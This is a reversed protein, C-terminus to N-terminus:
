ATELVEETPEGAFRLQPRPVRLDRRIKWLAWDRFLRARGVRQSPLGFEAVSEAILRLFLPRCPIDGYIHHFAAREVLAELEELRQREEPSEVTERFSQLFRTIEENGWDLLELARNQRIRPEGRSALGGATSSLDGKRSLWYESRM